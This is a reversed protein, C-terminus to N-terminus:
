ILKVACQYDVLEIIEERLKETMQLVLCDRVIKPFTYFDPQQEELVRIILDKISGYKQSTSLGM